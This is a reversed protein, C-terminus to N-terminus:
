CINTEYEEFEKSEKYSALWVRDDNSTCGYEMLYEYRERSTKFLPKVAPNYKESKEKKTELKPIIPSPLIEEKNELECELIELDEINLFEKCAKITRNKLQKQKQIKQKYDEIDKIEGTYHALPHTLTIRDARCLFKGSTTYVNIYSLDFLSYKIIVKQRLGYLADNYYDPKLFRIGQSTITKIEQAMMLDDLERPNIKQREISDLMEKISRTRDNPCPLSNKYELWSNIMQITQQITPTFETHIESHFKENRRLRAPKNEISTGIYSPLLKEFSEQMELFFREIVKARANYPNAFVTTIGLKEYIGKLGVENFDARGIFYKGRFAKGNDLYVFKPIKGLNLIANRLASAINQTNEELMIEYGVLATSKWDLFGVLTARTPKGTFPNKIQFNLVHGDAVLVDGVELKSIDREIYPEVKDHYAKMGERKLIWEDYHNKRFNEAYRKFSLDCPLAKYGKKYLIEKSLKIAKGVCFKNEHLLFRLFIHKMEDNLITNYEGQKSYKYQPLLSEHTEHKEFAKVWRYLTGISITGLYRFVKPMFMGSNYLDLFMADAEKKTKFKKRYEKLAVVVDVRALATLKASEAVFTIPQNLPVLATSKTEGTRLLEQIEPELTSYLIEYSTGGNVEVERAIYPSNPKNLQLRLSRTSKLGKAEAIEKINIYNSEMHLVNARLRVFQFVVESCQTSIHQKFKLIGLVSKKRLIVM